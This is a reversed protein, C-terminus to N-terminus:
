FVDTSAISPASNYQFIQSNGEPEDRFKEPCTCIDSTVASDDHTHQDSVQKNVSVHTVAWTQSPM